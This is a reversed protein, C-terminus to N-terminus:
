SYNGLLQAAEYCTGETIWFFFFVLVCGKVLWIQFHSWKEHNQKVHFHVKTITLFHAQLSTFGKLSFQLTASEKNNSEESSSILIRM